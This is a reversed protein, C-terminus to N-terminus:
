TLTKNRDCRFPMFCNNAINQISIQTFNADYFYRWTRLMKTLYNCKRVTFWNNQGHLGTTPSMPFRRSDLSAKILLTGTHLLIGNIICYGYPVTGWPKADIKKLRANSPISAIAVCWSKCTGWHLCRVPATTFPDFIRCLLYLALVSCSNRGKCTILQALSSTLFPFIIDLQASVTVQNFDSMKESSGEM